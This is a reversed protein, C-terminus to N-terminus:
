ESETIQASERMTYSQKKHKESLLHEKSSSDEISEVDGM